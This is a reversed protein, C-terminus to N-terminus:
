PLCYGNVCKQYIGCDRWAVNCQKKPLKMPRKGTKLSVPEMMPNTCGLFPYCGGPVSLFQKTFVLPPNTFKERIKMKKALSQCNVNMLNEIDRNLEDDTQACSFLSLLVIIVMFFLVLIAWGCGSTYDSM